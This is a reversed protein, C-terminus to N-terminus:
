GKTTEVNTSRKPANTALADPAVAPVNPTGECEYDSDKILTELKKLRDLMREIRELQKMVNNYQIGTM